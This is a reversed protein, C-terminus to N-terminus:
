HASSLRTNLFSSIIEHQKFVMLHGGGQVQVDPNALKLPILKDATGHIHYLGEVKIPHDWSSMRIMAWKLFKTDTDKLIAKLLNRMEPTDAGFYKYVLKNSSKLIPRALPHFLFIKLLRQYLGSIPIATSMSSIIIMKEPHIIKSLESVIMGGFSLGVLHFPRSTDIQATLRRAYSELTEKKAPDIWKIHRITFQTPDLQLNQFVREDAGLGSLFYVNIPTRDKANVTIVMFLLLFLFLFVRDM